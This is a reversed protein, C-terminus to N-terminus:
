PKLGFIGRGAIRAQGAVPPIDNRSIADQWLKVKESFASIYEQFQEGNMTQVWVRDFLILSDTQRSYAFIGTRDRTSNTRLAAEFIDEKYRGPPLSGITAGIILFREDKDPELNLTIGNNLRILCTNNEELHLNPIGLKVGVEEILKDLEFTM